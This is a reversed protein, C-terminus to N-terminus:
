QLPKESRLVPQLCPPETTARHPTPDKRGPISGTDGANALLNKDVLGGPFDGVLNRLPSFNVLGPIPSVTGAACCSLSLGPGLTQKGLIVM